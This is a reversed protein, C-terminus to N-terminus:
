SVASRFKTTVLSTKPRHGVELDLRGLPELPDLQAAFRDADAALGVVRDHQGVVHGAAMVAHDLRPVPTKPDAVESGAVPRPDVVLLDVGLPEVVAVHDLHAPRGQPEDVGLLDSGAGPALRGVEGGREIIGVLVQVVPGREVEVEVRRDRVRRRRILALQPLDDVPGRLLEEVIAVEAEHVAPPHGHVLGRRGPQLAAAGLLLGALPESYEPQQQQGAEPRPGGVQVHLRADAGGGDAHADVAVHDGGDLQAHGDVQPQQAHHLDEALDVGAALADHLVAVEGHGDLATSDCKETDTL